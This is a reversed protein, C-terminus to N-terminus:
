VIRRRWLAAVLLASATFGLSAGFMLAADTGNLGVLRSIGSVLFGSCLLIIAIRQEAKRTAILLIIAGIIVICAAASLPDLTMKNMFAEVFWAARAPRESVILV